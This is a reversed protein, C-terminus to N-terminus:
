PNTDASILVAWNSLQLHAAVPTNRVSGSKYPYGNQKVPSQFAAIHIYETSQIYKTECM